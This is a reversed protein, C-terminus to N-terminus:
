FQTFTNSHLRGLCRWCLLWLHINMTLSLVIRHDSVSFNIFSLVLFSGYRLILKQHFLIEIQVAFSVWSSSRVPLAELVAIIHGLCKGKRIMEPIAFCSWLGYIGIGVIAVQFDTPACFRGHLSENPAKRFCFSCLFHQDNQRDM